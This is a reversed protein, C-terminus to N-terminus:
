LPYFIMRMIQSMKTVNIVAFLEAYATVGVDSDSDAAGIIKFSAM